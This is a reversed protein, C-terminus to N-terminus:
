EDNSNCVVLRRAGTCTGFEQCTAMGTTGCGGAACLSEELGCGYADVCKACFPDRMRGQDARADSRLGLLGLVVVLAGLRVNKM